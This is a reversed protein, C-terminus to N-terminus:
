KSEADSTSAARYIQVRHSLPFVQSDLWSMLRDFAAKDDPMEFQVELNSNTSSNLLAQAQDLDDQLGPGTSGVLSISTIWSSPTAKTLQRWSKLLLTCVGRLRGRNQLHISVLYSNFNIVKSKLSAYTTLYTLYFKQFDYLTPCVLASFLIIGRSHM